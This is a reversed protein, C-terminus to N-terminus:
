LQSVIHEIYNRAKSAYQYPDAVSPDQEAEIIMWGEYNQDQLEKFIPTFDICGDGPVTFVGEIVADQFRISERRVRDLVDQRIDKLHVYAIRSRYKRLLELLDYGGYYAHGTDYLLHVLEPNTTAMLRDIEEPKEVITGIHYHYVLKMGNDRCIEGAQHLGEVMHNWQEDTPPIVNKANVERRPDGTISGGLECTVVHEAGMQKLFAVHQRYAELESERVSPDSFLVGKWQSTLRIGKDALAAKLVAPDKPFKRCNETARFGLKSFDGLLDEFTYHDGLELVDENVWNIPSIGIKLNDWNM